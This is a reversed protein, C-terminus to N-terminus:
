YRHSGRLEFVITTTDVITQLTLVTDETKELDSHQLRLNSFLGDMVREIEDYTLDMAYDGVVKLSSVFRFKPVSQLIQEWFPLMNDLLDSIEDQMEAVSSPELSRVYFEHRLEVDVETANPFAASLKELQTCTQPWHDCLPDLQLIAWFLRSTKAAFFTNQVSEIFKHPDYGKMYIFIPTGTVESSSFTFDFFTPASLYRDGVHCSMGTSGDMAVIRKQFSEPIAGQSFTASDINNLQLLGQNNQMYLFHRTLMFSQQWQSYSLSQLDSLKSIFSTICDPAIYRDQFALHTITLKASGQSILDLFKSLYRFFFPSNREFRLSRAYSAFTVGDESVYLTTFVKIIDWAYQLLVPEFRTVEIGFFSYIVFRQFQLDSVWVPFNPLM